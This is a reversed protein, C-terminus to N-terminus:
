VPRRVLRNKGGCLHHACEQQGTALFPPQEALHAYWSSGTHISGNTFTRLDLHLILSDRFLCCIKRYAVHINEGQETLPDTFGYGSDGVPGARAASVVVSPAFAHLFTCSLTTGESGGGFNSLNSKEGSIRPRSAIM